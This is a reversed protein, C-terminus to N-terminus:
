KHSIKTVVVMFLSLSKIVKFLLLLFLKLCEATYFSPYYDLIIIIEAPNEDRSFPVGCVREYIHEWILPM